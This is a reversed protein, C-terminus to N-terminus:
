HCGNSVARYVLKYIWSMRLTHIMQYWTWHRLPIWIYETLVTGKNVSSVTRWFALLAIFLNKVILIKHSMSVKLSVALLEM